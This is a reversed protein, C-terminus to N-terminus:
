EASGTVLSKTAKADHLVGRLWVRFSQIEPREHNKRPMVLYYSMDLPLVPKFPRYLRGELLDKEALALRGLVVGTGDVAAQLALEALSFRTGGNANVEPAGALKLWQAWAGENQRGPISLDHLLRFHRLDHPSNLPRKPTVLKPSCMPCLAERFLLEAKLAGYKGSGFRIALDVEETTFDALAVTASIRLEIDPFRATFEPLRPLLWKSAFSPAVSITLTNGHRPRLSDDLVRSLSAFGAQVDPLISNGAATLSVNRRSRRFLATGLQEELARVQQSIAGPTVHLEKAAGTFSLTRAVAEFARLASLPPLRRGM